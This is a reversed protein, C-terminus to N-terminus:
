KFSFISYAPFGIRLFYHSLRTNICVDLERKEQWENLSQTIINHFLMPGNKSVQARYSMHFPVSKVLLDELIQILKRDVKSSWM